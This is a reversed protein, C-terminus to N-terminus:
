EPASFTNVRFDRFHFLAATVDIFGCGHVQEGFGLIFPRASVAQFGLSSIGDLLCGATGPRCLPLLGWAPERRPPQSASCPSGRDNGKLFSSGPTKLGFFRDSSGSTLHPKLLLCQQERLLGSHVDGGLGLAIRFCSPASAEWSLRRDSSGGMHSRVPPASLLFAGPLLHLACAKPGPSPAPRGKATLRVSGCSSLKM